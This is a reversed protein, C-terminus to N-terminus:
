RGPSEPLKLDLLEFGFTELGTLILAPICKLNHFTNLNKMEMRLIEKSVEGSFSEWFCPGVIQDSSKLM